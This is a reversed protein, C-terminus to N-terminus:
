LNREKTAENVENINFASEFGILYLFKSQDEAGIAISDLSLNLHLIGREHM